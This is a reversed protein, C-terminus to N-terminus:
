NIKIHWTELIISTFNNTQYRLGANFSRESLSIKDIGFDNVGHYSHGPTAL